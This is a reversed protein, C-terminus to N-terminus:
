LSGTQVHASLKCISFNWYSVQMLKIKFHLGHLEADLKASTLVKKKGVQIFIDPCFAFLLFLAV